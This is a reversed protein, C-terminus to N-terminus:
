PLFRTRLEAPLAPCIEAPRAFVLRRIAAVGDYGWDLFWRPLLSLLRAVGGWFGSVRQGLHLAADSKLLTRGVATRVVLSEPFRARQEPPFASDFTEGGLPAYQFMRGEPDRRLAFLVLRHCLGCTGDYFVLDRPIGPMIREM